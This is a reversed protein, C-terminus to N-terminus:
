AQTNTSGTSTTLTITPTGLAAAASINFTATVQSGQANWTVNSFTLGTWSTSLNAGTLNVGSIQVQPATGQAGNSPSVGTILPGGASSITFNFNTSGGSATLTVTATGLNATPSIAFTATVSNGDANSQISSFTLGPWQTSFSVNCLNAGMITVSVNNTTADRAGGSPSLSGTPVGPPLVTVSANTNLWASNLYNKLKTFVYSGPPTCSPVVQTFVGNPSGSSVASFQFTGVPLEAGGNLRYRDRICM